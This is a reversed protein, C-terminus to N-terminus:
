HTTQDGPAAHEGASRRPGKLCRECERVVRCKEKRRVREIGLGEEGELRERRDRVDGGEVAFVGHRELLVDLSKWVRLHVGSLPPPLRTCPVLDKYTLSRNVHNRFRRAALHETTREALTM